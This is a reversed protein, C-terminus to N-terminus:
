TITNITEAATIHFFSKRLISPRRPAIRLSSLSLVQYFLSGAIPTVKDAALKEAQLWSSMDSWNWSYIDNGRSIAILKGDITYLNNVGAHSGLLERVLISKRNTLIMMAVIAVILLSVIICKKM